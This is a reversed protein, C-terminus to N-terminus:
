NDPQPVTTITSGPPTVIVTKQPPSGGGLSVCGALATAIAMGLVGVLILNGLRSPVARKIRTTHM